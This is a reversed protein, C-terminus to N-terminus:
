WSNQCIICNVTSGSKKKRIANCLWTPYKLQNRKGSPSIPVESYIYILNFLSQYMIRSINIIKSLESERINKKGWNYLCILNIYKKQKFIYMNGPNIWKMKRIHVAAGNVGLLYNWLIGIFFPSLSVM